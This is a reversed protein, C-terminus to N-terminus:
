VRGTRPPHIRTGRSGGGRGDPSLEGRGLRRFQHRHGVVEGSLAAATSVTLVGTAPDITVGAGTAAFSLGEGAFVQATAITESGGDQDFIEDFLEGM